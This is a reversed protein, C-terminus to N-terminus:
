RRNVGRIRKMWFGVGCNMRTWCAGCGSWPKTAVLTQRWARPKRTQAAKPWPPAARRRRTTAAAKPDPANALKICRQVDRLSRHVNAKVWKTWTTDSAEGNQVRKQAEILMRGAEIRLDFARIENNDAKKMLRQIDSALTKLDTTTPDTM